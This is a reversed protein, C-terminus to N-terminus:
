SINIDALDATFKITLRNIHFFVSKKERAIIMKEIKGKVGNKFFVNKFELNVVKIKRIDTFERNYDCSTKFDYFFNNRCHQITNEFILDLNKIYPENFEYEEVFIKKFKM